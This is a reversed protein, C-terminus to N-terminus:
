AHRGDEFGADSVMRLAAIKEVDLTQPPQSLRTAAERASTLAYQMVGILVFAGVSYGFFGLGTMVKSTDNFLYSGAVCFLGMLFFVVSALGLVVSGIWVVIGGFLSLFGAAVGLIVRGMGTLFDM